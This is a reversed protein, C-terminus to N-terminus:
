FLVQNLLAVSFISLMFWGIFGELICAYRAIGVTPINGFGLTTYANLSLALGNMFSYLIGGSLMLFPKIYGHENKEILTRYNKLLIVKSTIDWDSPFFFYFIGFFFIIYLSVVIAQAPDTGHNTYLKMLRALQWQFYSKFSPNQLHLSKLRLSHIDKLEVFCGNYSEIDGRERYKNLLNQYIFILEDYKTVDSTSRITNAKYYQISDYYIGSPHLFTQFAIVGMKNGIFSSWKTYVDADGLQTHSFYISKTFNTRSISLRKTVKSRYLIFDSDISCSDMAVENFDDSQLVISKFKGSSAFHSGRIIVAIPPSKYLKNGIFFFDQLKHDFKDNGSFQQSDDAHFQSNTISIETSSDFERLKVVNFFCKNININLELENSFGCHEVMLSRIESNDISLDGVGLQSTELYGMYCNEIGVYGLTAGTLLLSDISIKELEIGSTFKCAILQISNKVIIRGDNDIPLGPIKKTIFSFFTEDRLEKDVIITKFQVTVRKNPFDQFVAARFIESLLITGNSSAKQSYVSHSLFLCIIIVFNNRYM